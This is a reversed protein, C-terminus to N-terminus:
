MDYVCIMALIYWAMWVGEQGLTLLSIAVAILAASMQFGAQLFLTRRGFIDATWWSVYTSLQLQVLINLLILQSSLDVAATAAAANAYCYLEALNVWQTFATCTNCM